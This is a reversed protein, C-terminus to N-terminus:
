RWMRTTKSFMKRADTVTTPISLDQAIKTIEHNATVISAALKAKAGDILQQVQRKALSVAEEYDAQHKKAEESCAKELDNVERLLALRRAIRENKRDIEEDMVVVRQKKKNPSESEVGSSKLDVVATNVVLDENTSAM